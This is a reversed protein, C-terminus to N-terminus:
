HVPLKSINNKIAYKVVGVVNKAGTKRILEARIKEVRKVTYGYKEAIEQSTMENCIHKMVTIEKPSFIEGYKVLSQINKGKVFKLNYDRCIKKLINTEASTFNITKM